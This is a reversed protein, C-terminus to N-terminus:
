HIQNQLHYKDTMGSTSDSELSDTEYARNIFLKFNKYNFSIQDSNCKIKAVISAIYLLPHLANITFYTQLM